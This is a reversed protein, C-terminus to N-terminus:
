SIIDFIFAIKNNKFQPKISIKEVVSPVLSQIKIIQEKSIPKEILITYRTIKENNKLNDDNNNNNDNFVNTLYKFNLINSIYTVLSHNKNNNNDFNINKKDRFFIEPNKIGNLTLMENNEGDSIDIDIYKSILNIFLEPNNLTFNEDNINDDNHILNLSSSSLLINKKNKILSTTTKSLSSSSSSFVSRNDDIKKNIILNNNLLNNKIFTNNRLFLYNKILLNLSTKIKFNNKFSKNIPFLCDISNQISFSKSRSKSNQCDSIYINFGILPINNPLDKFKNLFKVDFIIIDIVNDLLSIDKLKELPIELPHSSYFTLITITNEKLNKIFLNDNSNYFSSSKNILNLSSSSSYSSSLIESIYIQNNKIEEIFNLGLFNEIWFYILSISLLSESSNKNIDDNSNNNNLLPGISINKQQNNNNDEKKDKDEKKKNNNNNLFHPPSSSSLPQINKKIDFNNSYINNKNNKKLTFCCPCNFLNNEDNKNIISNIISIFIYAIKKSKSIKKNKLKFFGSINSPSPSSSSSSSYINNLISKECLFLNNKCKPNWYLDLHKEIMNKSYQFASLIIGEHLFLKNKDYVDFFFNNAILSINKITNNILNNNYYINNLDLIKDNYKYIKYFGYISRFLHLVYKEDKSFSSPLLLLYNKTTEKIIKQKKKNNDYFIIDDNYRLRKKKQKEGDFNNDNDDYDTNNNIYDDNNNNIYDDINDNYNEDDSYIIGKFDDDNNDVHSSESYKSSFFFTNTSSNSSSPSSYINM